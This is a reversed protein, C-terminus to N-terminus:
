PILTVATGDGGSSRPGAVSPPFPKESKRIAETPSGTGGATMKDTAVSPAGRKSGESHCSASGLTTAAKEDSARTTRVTETREEGVADIGPISSVTRSTGRLWCCTSCAISCTSADHHDSRAEAYRALEIIPAAPRATM